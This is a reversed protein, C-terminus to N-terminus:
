GAQKFFEFFFGGQKNIGKQEGPLIRGYKKKSKAIKVM